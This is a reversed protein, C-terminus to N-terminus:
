FAPRVSDLHETGDVGMAGAQPTRNTTTEILTNFTICPVLSGTPGIRSLEKNEAEMFCVLGREAQAAGGICAHVTFCKRNRRLADYFSAVPEVCVGTWNHERELVVTNNREVGDSAGIDVFFGGRKGGLLALAAQDQDFEARSWPM